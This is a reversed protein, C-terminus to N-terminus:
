AAPDICVAESTNLNLARCIKGIVKKESESLRSDSKAILISARVLVIAHDKDKTFKSVIKFIKETAADPDAQIAEVYDRFLDVATHVDYLKLERVNELIYDRALQEPLTVEGDAMALLAGAAMTAKLFDRNRFREVENTLTKAIEAIFASM